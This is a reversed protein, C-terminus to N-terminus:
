SVLVPCTSLSLVRHSSLNSFLFIVPALVLRHTEAPRLLKRQTRRRMEKQRQAVPFEGAFRRFGM